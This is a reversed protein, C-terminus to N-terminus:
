RVKPKWCNSTFIFMLNVKYDTLAYPNSQSGLVLIQNRWMKYRLIWQCWSACPFTVKTIFSGCSALQGHWKMSLAGPLAMIYLRWSLLRPVFELCDTHMDPKLWLFLPHSAPFFFSFSGFYDVHVYENKPFLLQCNFLWKRILTRLGGFMKLIAQPNFVCKM